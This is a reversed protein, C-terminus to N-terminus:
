LCKTVAHQSALWFLMHLVTMCKYSTSVSPYSYETDMDFLAKSFPQIFHRDDNRAHDQSSLWSLFCAHADLLQEELTASSFAGERCREKLCSGVIHSAWGNHFLIHMGDPLSLQLSWGPMQLFPSSGGARKYEDTSVRTSRWGASERHDGYRCGPMHKSALDLECMLNCQYNRPFRNLQQKAKSDFKNGAFMFLHGEQSILGGGPMRGTMVLEVQSCCLAVMQEHTKRTALQVPVQLWFFKTVCVQGRVIASSLSCCFMESDAGSVRGYKVEDFHFTLPVVLGWSSRPLAAIPHRLGWGEVM